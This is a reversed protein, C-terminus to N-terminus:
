VVSAQGLTRSHGKLSTVAVDIGRKWYDIGTPEM